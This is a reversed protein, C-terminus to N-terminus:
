VIYHKNILDEAERVRKELEVFGDGHDFGGVGHAFKTCLDELGEHIIFAVNLKMEGLYTESTLPRGVDVSAVIEVSAICLDMMEEISTAFKVASKQSLKKTVCISAWDYRLRLLTIYNM